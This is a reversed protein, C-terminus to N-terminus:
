AHLQVEGGIPIYQGKSFPRSEDYTYHANRKDTLATLASVM